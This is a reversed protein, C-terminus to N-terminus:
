GQRTVGTRFVPQPYSGSPVEREAQVLKPGPGFQDPNGELFINDDYGGSTVDTPDTRKDATFMRLQDQLTYKDVSAHLEDRHSQYDSEPHVFQGVGPGFESKRPQGPVLPASMASLKAWVRWGAVEFCRSWGLDASKAVSLVARVARVLMNGIIPYLKRMLIRSYTRTLGKKYGTDEQIRFFLYVCLSYISLSHKSAKANSGDSGKESHSGYGFFQICRTVAPLFPVSQIRTDLTKSVSRM